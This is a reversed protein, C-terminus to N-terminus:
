ADAGPGRSKNFFLMAIGILITQAQEKLGLGWMVASLSLALVSFVLREGHNNIFKNIWDKVM